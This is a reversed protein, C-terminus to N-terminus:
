MGCTNTHERYKEKLRALLADACQYYEAIKGDEYLKKIKELEQYEGTQEAMNRAAYVEKAVQTTIESRPALATLEM